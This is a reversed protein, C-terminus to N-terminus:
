LQVIVDNRGQVLVVSLWFSLVVPSYLQILPSFCACSFVDAHDQNVETDDWTPHRLFPGFRRLHGSSSQVYLSSCFM